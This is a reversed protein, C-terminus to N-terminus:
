VWDFPMWVTDFVKEQQWGGATVEDPQDIPVLWRPTAIAAAALPENSGDRVVVVLFPGDVLICYPARPPMGRTALLYTSLLQVGREDVLLEVDQNAVDVVGYNAVGRLTRGILEDYARTEKVRILPMFFIDQRM